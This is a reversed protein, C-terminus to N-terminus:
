GDDRRKRVLPGGVWQPEWEGDDEGNAEPDAPEPESLAAAIGLLGHGVHEAAVILRELQESTM